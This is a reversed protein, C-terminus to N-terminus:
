GLVEKVGRWLAEVMAELQAETVCYPPMLVLVDGIPRTLLGHARAAECVRHGVREAFDFPQRSEFDRVLEIACILGEQRVDGVNPHEWFKAALKGLHRALAANRELTQETAFIRLNAMAAACGLANGTYSHGHFFTKLEAYEGLFAEFIEPSALTAALPLYGGTLGKALAVLDPTVGEQEFAFMTGTRGFGTMVEDLVLWAGRERCVAAAKQLYGHPQMKMGAAGMIRPELVLASTTDGLRELEDKLEGICEWECDRTERADTGPMPKAQNYPCRYCAPCVVDHTRFLLPKYALHFVTSHGVSMAGITDGHYGFGLSIFETRKTEGRQMRAQYVMKLAAEMATSGDDSFFVKHGRLGTVEVLEHALQAAVDNTLGLFSSHAIRGLQARIAEDIEVRRHGHLNTWISSNGDLYERGDEAKLVAGHGEVIVVPVHAPDNWDRMQTFPHWVHARDLEASNM